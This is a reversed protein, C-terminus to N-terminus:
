PLHQTLSQKEVYDVLRKTAIRKDDMTHDFREWFTKKCERCRYRQRKVRLEVRKGHIPLDYYVQERHDHKYLNAVTGCHPCARPSEKPEISIQFDYENEAFHIVNFAPLNLIDM